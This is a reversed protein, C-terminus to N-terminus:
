PELRRLVPVRNFKGSGARTTVDIAESNSKRNSYLKLSNTPKTYNGKFGCKRM